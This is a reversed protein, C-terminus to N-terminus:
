GLVDSGAELQSLFDKLRQRLTPSLQQGEM